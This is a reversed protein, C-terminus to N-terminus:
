RDVKIEVNDVMFPLIDMIVDKVYEPMDEDESSFNITITSM